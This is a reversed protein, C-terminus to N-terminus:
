LKKNNFMTIKWPANQSDRELINIKCHGFWEELKLPLLGLVRVLLHYLTGGHGILLITTNETQNDIIEFFVEKTRITHDINSEGDPVKM